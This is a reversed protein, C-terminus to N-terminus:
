FSPEGSCKNRAPSSKCTVDYTAYFTDYSYVLRAIGFACTRTLDAHSVFPLSNRMVYLYGGGFIATVMMKQQVPMQLGWVTSLPLSAVMIDQIVAIVGAALVRAGEDLCTYKVDALIWKYNVQHWFASFPRCESLPLIFLIVTTLVVFVITCWVSTFVWHSGGRRTMRLVFFLISLKILGTGLIYSCEMALVM